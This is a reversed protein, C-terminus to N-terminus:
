VGEGGGGSKDYNKHKFHVIYMTKNAIRMRKYHVLWNICGVKTLRDLSCLLNHNKIKIIEHKTTSYFYSHLKM